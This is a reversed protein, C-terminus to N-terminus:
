CSDPLLWPDLASLISMSLTYNKHCGHCFLVGFDIQHPRYNQHFPLGCIQCRRGYHLWGALERRYDIEPQFPGGLALNRIRFSGNGIPILPYYRTDSLHKLDCSWEVHMSLESLNNIKPLVILGHQFGSQDWYYRTEPLPTQLMNGDQVVRRFEFCSGLMLPRLSSLALTHTQEGLRSATKTRSISPSPSCPLPIIEYWISNLSTSLARIPPYAAEAQFLWIPELYGLVM